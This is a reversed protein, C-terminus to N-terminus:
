PVPPSRTFWYLAFMVAAAVVAVLAIFWALWASGRKREGASVTAKLQGGRAPFSPPIPITGQSPGSPSVAMPPEATASAAPSAKATAAPSTGAIPERPPREVTEIEGTHAVHTVGAAPPLDVGHKRLIDDVSVNPDMRVTEQLNSLPPPEETSPEETRVTAKLGALSSPPPADPEHTRVTAKLQSLASPPSSLESSTQSAAGFREAAAVAEVAALMEEASSFRNQPDKEVAKAIVRGLPTEMVAESLQHPEASLHALLVMQENAGSVLKRGSLLESMVLGTSYLDCSLDVGFGKIQEPSMYAPTGLMQGVRTLQTTPAKKDHLAKAIGFDLVKVFDDERGACLYINAPKIDRHAIELAHAATLARLVQISIQCARTFSLAGEQKLRYKLSHGRLLEFIIFPLGEDTHGYDLTDVVNRHHLRTVLAAERQFRKIKEPNAVHKDHMLKLAVPLNDELRTACYVTGYGGRGIAKDIRYQAGVVYGPELTPQSM